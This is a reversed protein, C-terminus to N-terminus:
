WSNFIDESVKTIYYFFTQCVAQHSQIVLLGPVVESLPKMNLFIFLYSNLYLLSFFDQSGNQIAASVPSLWNASKQFITLIASKSGHM